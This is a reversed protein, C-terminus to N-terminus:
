LISTVPLIIHLKPFSASRKPRSTVTLIDFCGGSSSITPNVDTLHILEYEVNKKVFV